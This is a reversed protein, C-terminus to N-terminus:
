RDDDDDDDGDDDDDDDTHLQLTGHKATVLDAQGASDGALLYGDLERGTRRETMECKVFSTQSCPQGHRTYRHAASVRYM